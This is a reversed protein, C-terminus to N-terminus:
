ASRQPVRRLLRFPPGASGRRHSHNATTDGAKAAAEAMKRNIDRTERQTNPPEQSM